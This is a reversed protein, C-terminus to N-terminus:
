QSDVIIHYLITSYSIITTLPVLRTDHNTSKEYEIVRKFKYIQTKVLVYIRGYTEWFLILITDFIAFFCILFTHVNTYCGKYYLPELTFSQIVINTLTFVPTKALDKHFLSFSAM